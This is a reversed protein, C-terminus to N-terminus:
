ERSSLFRGIHHAAMKGSGGSMFGGPHTGASCLFLGSIPSEYRSYGLVPRMNALQDLALEGHFIHGGHLGYQSALEVPSIVEAAVVQSDIGPAFHELTSLVRKLVVENMGPWRGDRLQYPTYHAYISMVHAGSPALTSDLVSPVTVDLWPQESIGGYKAHDFARELYDLDPGIHIRGSLLETRDSVENRLQGPAIGLAFAPLASLALNVKALTGHARYSHIKSRFDPSLDAPDMLTLFTTKPDIASVVVDAPIERGGAVIGCVRGDKVIIREVRTGPQINAGASRAADAMAHTLAGPGGRVQAHGGALLRTAERLLLVLASGASRPGFMTGSLAPAAVTARLVDSEFWESALDAVPMPAWRLLAYAKSSGLARFRRGTKLLNWVDRADPDDIDPTVATLLSGIVRCVDGLSSRYAAFRDADRAHVLRLAEATRRDDTYIVVTPGDGHAPACAEVQSSLFEVGRRTLHMDAVIDSRLSAYHSLTPCRFGPHLEGTIAGGGLTDRQELVLPSFGAKALYFAATLGNHGAGIVITNM